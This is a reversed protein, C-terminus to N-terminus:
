GAPSPLMSRLIAISGDGAPYTSACLLSIDTVLHDPLPPTDPSDM